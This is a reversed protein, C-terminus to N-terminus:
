VRDWVNLSSYPSLINSFVTSLFIIPVLLSSTVPFQIILLKTIQVASCITSSYDLIICHCPMYCIHCLLSLFLFNQYCYWFPLTWPFATLKTVTTVMVLFDITICYHCCCYWPLCLLWIFVSSRPLWSLLLAFLWPLLVYVCWCM